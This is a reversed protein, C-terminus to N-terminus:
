IKIKNAMNKSKETLRKKIQAETEPDILIMRHGSPLRRSKLYKKEVWYCIVNRSLNFKEMVEKTYYENKNRPPKLQIDYAKRIWSIMAKTFTKKTASTYNKENLIQAIQADYKGKNVLARVKKVLEPRNKRLEAAKLPPAVRRTEYAGGQWRVQLIWENKAKNKNVTIDKILLRLIRKKDKMKKTQRWLQPIDKALEFLEDKRKKTIITSQKKLYQQHDEQTSILRALADEWKKELNLAVLRNSPDVQEYRREALNVDYEARQIKIEWHKDFSRNRKELEELARLAIAIKEPTLVEIIREEISKDVYSSRMSICMPANIGKRVQMNCEYTPYKGNSGKYRVSLRHGCKGCILIGQLLMPGERVPSPLTYTSDRTQNKILTEQNNLYSQWNTYAPHHDKLIVEWKEMPVKQQINKIQGQDNLIKINKFRGFTYTGAYFPNQLIYLIRHHPLRGWILKGKWKGNKPRTPFNIKNKAFHSMVGYASHTQNFTEFLLDISAKIQIDPDFDIEGEPSYCYGIPLYFQLLGKKAKNVKGGYLRVMMLHLEAQSMTGKLGLLLQDNFLSPDYIGDEDIILTASLACLELLRNWDSSCRSLRSAELVFIAGVKGMSVDSVLANFDHRGLTQTGSKGLDGDLIKIQECAWGFAIAKEQLAYQRETSEKHRLVQSTTSQRLYIHALREKHIMQIKNTPKM